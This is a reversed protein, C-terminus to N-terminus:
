ALLTACYKVIDQLSYTSVAIYADPRILVYGQKPAQMGEPESRIQNQKIIKLPLQQLKMIKEMQERCDHQTDNNEFCLLYFYNPDMDCYYSYNKDNDHWSFDAIQTGATFGALASKGVLMSNKYEIDLQNNHLLFTKQITKLKTVLQILTNRLYYLIPNNLTAMRMFRSSLKIVQRDVPQRENQYSALIGQKAKFKHKLRLKWCLNIADQMGTNMGLGGAPSHCHAADGLLFINGKHYQAALHEHVWFRSSWTMDSISHTFPMCCKAIAQMDELSPYDIQNFQPQRSVEAILRYNGNAALPIALMTLHPHFFACMTNNNIQSAQLTADIMVFHSKAKM